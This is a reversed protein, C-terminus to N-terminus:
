KPPNKKSPKSGNIKQELVKNTKELKTMKEELRTMKSELKDVSQKLGETEPIQFLIVLSLLLTVLILVIPLYSNNNSGFFGQSRRRAKISKYDIRDNPENHKDSRKELSM